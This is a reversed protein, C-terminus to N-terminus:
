RLSSPILPEDLLRTFRETLSVEAPRDDLWARLLRYGEVYTSTYARWLPSSLFRLMQRAREDSVLLWQSLYAVVDDVDRHEDHLMLAADQRVDALAAAAESVAASREGDFRLGLDAYIETAWAGWDPGIAAYLALDALGEAMLCQPTNVLFITQEQQNLGAVLGAEKRCHETHHGPYSEHAVLRPLNSMQQKLDANVAVTSAYDGLYYNFGSWPKDTVVEYTVTETDPLPFTTRVTDRLASSFAHICEELRNPPIEEAQRHSQLRQALPGSGGLAEDLRRHADRYRDQDGKVIDVDFYERVEEVFGVDEGAFKRGACALAKLHASLYARRQADLGEAAPVEALLRQATRALDAPDPAPEDAVKRRLAPDGTFSDVYGEEVRDFRLGLLLYEDILTSANM